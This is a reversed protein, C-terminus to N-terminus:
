YAIPGLVRQNAVVLKNTMNWAHGEADEDVSCVRDVLVDRRLLILERLLVQGPCLLTFPVPDDIQFGGLYEVGLPEEGNGLNLLDDRVRAM